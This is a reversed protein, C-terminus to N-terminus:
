HKPGAPQLTMRKCTPEVAEPKANADLEFSLPRKHCGAVAGAGVISGPPAPGTRVMGLRDVPPAGDHTPSPPGTDAAAPKLTILTAPAPTTFDHAGEGARAPASEFVPASSSGPGDSDGLGNTGTPGVDTPPSLPSGSPDSTAPGVQIMATEPQLPAALTGTALGTGTPPPLPALPGSAASPDALPAAIATSSVAEPPQSGTSHVRFDPLRRGVIVSAIFQRYINVLPATCDLTQCRLVGMPPSCPPPPHVFKLCGLRSPAPIHSGRTADGCFCGPHRCHPTPTKPGQVV